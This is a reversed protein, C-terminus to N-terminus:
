KEEEEEKEKEHILLAIGASLCIIIFNVLIITMVRDYLIAVLFTEFAIFILFAGLYKM